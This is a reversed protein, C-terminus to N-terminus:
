GVENRQANLLQSKVLLIFYVYITPKMICLLLILCVSFLLSFVTSLYAVM